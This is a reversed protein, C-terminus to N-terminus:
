LALFKADDASFPEEELHGFVAVQVLIAAAAAAARV